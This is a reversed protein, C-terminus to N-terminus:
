TSTSACSQMRRAIEACVADPDSSGIVYCIGGSRFEVASGGNVIWRREGFGIRYGLGTPLIRRPACSEIEDFGLRKSLVRGTFYWEVGDADVRITLTALMAASAVAILAIIAVPLSHVLVGTVVSAVFIVGLISISLTGIQVSTFPQDSV